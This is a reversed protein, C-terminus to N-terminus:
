NELVRDRDQECLEQPKLINLIRDSIENVAEVLWKPTEGLDMANLHDSITFKSTHPVLDDERARVLVDHYTTHGASVAQSLRDFEEITM